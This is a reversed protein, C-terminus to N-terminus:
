GKENESRQLFDEILSKLQDRVKRYHHIQKEDARWDQFPDEVDWHLRLAHGTYAACRMQAADSLTILVDLPENLYNELAESRQHSIDVGVEAMVRQALPHLRTPVVGASFVEYRDGGLHKLWGEAMQSRCSNGTCAFLVRKKRKM